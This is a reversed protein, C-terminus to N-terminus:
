VLASDGPSSRSSPSQTRISEVPDPPKPPRVDFDVGAGSVGRPAAAIVSPARAAAAARPGADASFARWSRPCGYITTDRGQPAPRNPPPTSPGLGSEPAMWKTTELSAM